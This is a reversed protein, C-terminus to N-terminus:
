KYMYLKNKNYLYKLNYDVICIICIFDRFMKKKLRCKEIKNQYM